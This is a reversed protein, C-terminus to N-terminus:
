TSLKREDVMLAAIVSILPFFANIAFMQQPSVWDLLKGSLYSSMLMCIATLSLYDGVNKAATGHKKSESNSMEVMIGEGIVNIFGSSLNIVLQSM